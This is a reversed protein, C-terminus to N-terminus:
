GMNIDIMDAFQNLYKAAEAMIQPKQGSIQYRVPSSKENKKEIINGKVQYLFESSIMETTLLSETTYNRILDRMMFDTIGAMPALSVKSKILEKVRNKM